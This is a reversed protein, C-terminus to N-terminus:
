NAEAELKSSLVMEAEMGAAPAAAAAAAAAAGAHSLRPHWCGGQEAGKPASRPCPTASFCWTLSSSEAVVPVPRSSLGWALTRCSWTVMLGACPSM